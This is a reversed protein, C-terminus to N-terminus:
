SEEEFVPTTSPHLPPTIPILDMSGASWYEMVANM